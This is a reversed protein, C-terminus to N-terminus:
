EYCFENFTGVTLTVPDSGTADNVGGKEPAASGCATLSLALCAAAASLVTFKTPNKM